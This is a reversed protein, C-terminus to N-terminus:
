AVESYVVGRSVLEEEILGLSREIERSHIFALAGVCASMYRLLVDTEMFSFRDDGMRVGGTRVVCSVYYGMLFGVGMQASSLPKVKSNYRYGKEMGGLDAARIRM